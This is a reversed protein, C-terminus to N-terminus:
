TKIQAFSRDVILQQDNILSDEDIKLNYKCALQQMDYLLARKEIANEEEAYAHAMSQLEDIILEIDTVASIKGKVFIEIQLPEILSPNPSFGANILLSEIFKNLSIGVGGAKVEMEALKGIALQDKIKKKEQNEQKNLEDCDELLNSTIQTGYGLAEDIALSCVKPTFMGFMLSKVAEISFLHLIKDVGRHISSKIRSFLNKLGPAALFLIGQLSNHVKEATSNEVMYGYVIACNILTEPKQDSLNQELYQKATALKEELPAKTFGSIAFLPNYNSPLM